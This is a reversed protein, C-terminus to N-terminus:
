HFKLLDPDQLFTKRNESPIDLINMAKELNLDPQHKLLSSLAKKFADEAGKGIGQEMGQEMGREMGTNLARNWLGESFTCMNRMEKEFGETMLIGYREKLVQRKIEYPEQSVFLVSLLEQAGEKDRFIGESADKPDENRLWITAVALLADYDSGQFGLAHNKQLDILRCGYYLARNELHYHVSSSQAEINVIITQKQYRVVFVLDFYLRAGSISEDEVNFGIIKDHSNDPEIGAMIESISLDKCEELADKLIWALISKYSLIRKCSADYANEKPDEQIMEKPISRM